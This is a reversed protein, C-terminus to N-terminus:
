PKKTPAPAMKSHDMKSHDMAPMAKKATDAAHMHQMMSDVGPKGKMGAMMCPQAIPRFSDHAKTIAAKLAADAAKGQAGIAKIDAVAKPMGKRAAANDCAAPGKSALWADAAKGLEGAKERAPKLDGKNAAMSVTMLLSHLADFEKWGSKQGMMGGMGMGMGMGGKAKMAAQVCPKGVTEFGDHVKKLAAKVAADNAKTAAVASYAKADKVIGPLAKRAAANDCSAPGKSKAWAEASAAVQPALSRAMTLSDKMAPHWTSMLLSHFADLEAWGSKVDGMAMAQGQGMKSMDHPMAPKAQALAMAPVMVLVLIRRM